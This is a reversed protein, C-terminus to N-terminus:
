RPFYQILELSALVVKSAVLRSSSSSINDRWALLNYELTGTLSVIIANASLSSHDLPLIGSNRVDAIFFM